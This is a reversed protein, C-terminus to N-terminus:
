HILIKIIQITTPQISLNRLNCSVAQGRSPPSQPEISQAVQINLNPMM